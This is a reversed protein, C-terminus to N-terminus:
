AIGRLARRLRNWRARVRGEEAIRRLDPGREVSRAFPSLADLERPREEPTLSRVERLSVANVAAWRRRFPKADRKALGKM